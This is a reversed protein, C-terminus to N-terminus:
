YSADELMPFIYESKGNNYSREKWDSNVIYYLHCVTGDAATTLGVEGGINPLILVYDEINSAYEDSNNEAQQSIQVQTHYTAHLTVGSDELTKLEYYLKTKNRGVTVYIKGNDHLFGSLPKGDRLDDVVSEYSGYRYYMQYSQNDDDDIGDEEQQEMLMKMTKNKYYKEITTKAFWPHYTGQKVLPKLEKIVGEGRYGGEWYDRPSGHQRM